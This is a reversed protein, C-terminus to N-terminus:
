SVKADAAIVLHARMGTVNLGDYWSICRNVNSSTGNAAIYFVIKREMGFRM